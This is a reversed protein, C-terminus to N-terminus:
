KRGHSPKHHAMKQKAVARTVIGPVNDAGFEAAEECALEDATKHRKKQRVGPLRDEQAISAARRYAAPKGKPGQMSGEGSGNLGSTDSITFNHQSLTQDTSAQVQEDPLPDMSFQVQKTSTPIVSGNTDNILPIWNSDDPIIQAGLDSVTETINASPESPSVIALEAPPLPLPLTAPGAVMARRSAQKPRQKRGKKKPNVLDGVEPYTAQRFEGSRERIHSFRFADEPGFTIQRDYIGNLLVLIDDKTMNRPDQLIGQRALYKGPIMKRTSEKLIGFPVVKIQGNSALEKSRTLFPRFCFFLFLFMSYHHSLYTRALVELDRKRASRWLVADPLIPYGSENLKIQNGLAGIDPGETNVSATIDQLCKVYHLMSRKLNDLLDKNKERFLPVKLGMLEAMQEHRSLSM